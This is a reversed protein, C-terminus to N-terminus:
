ADKKSPLRSGDQHTYLIQSLVQVLPAAAAARLCQYVEVAVGVLYAPAPSVHRLKYTPPVLITTSDIPIGVSYETRFFHECHIKSVTL